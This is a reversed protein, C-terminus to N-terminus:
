RFVSACTFLPDFRAGNGEYYTIINVSGTSMAGSNNNKVALSMGHSNNLTTGDWSATGSVSYNVDPMATTFNITYDGTGNDTISSVNGSGRIAVTGTGNFNVWARCGYATAASGYGSNFQLNGSATLTMSTSFTIPNGATGSAATLWSHVGANQSYATSPNTTKYINNTGDFYFNQAVLVATPSGSYLSGGTLEFARFSSSWASPTVNLGLNGSANLTMLTNLTATNGATGSVASSWSHIGSNQLYSAATGTTLYINASGNWYINNGFLTSSTDAAISGITNIQIAKYSASWAAPTVGVGLNTGDFQLGTGTTLASTSSAYVVGRNTFSTLGTGGYGTGITGVDGSGLLSVGSVTKINTGSTLAAQKGNFTSWDTSSLAGRNSASATPVNLTIVPTTTGNAVTSSLDTGTTGLTLAAVSTVTGNTNSKNNFTTWDTSSLYGNVSGSAQAM